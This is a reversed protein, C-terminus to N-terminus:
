LFDDLIGVKSCHLLQTVHHENIHLYLAGLLMQNKKVDVGNMFPM